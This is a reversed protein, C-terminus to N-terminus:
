VKMQVHYGIVDVPTQTVASDRGKLGSYYLSFIIGRLGFRVMRVLAGIDGNMNQNKELFNLMFRLVFAPMFGLLFLLLKLDSLDAEPIEVLLLDVHEVAGLESFEPFGDGGPCMVDGLNNLARIQIKNLITSM